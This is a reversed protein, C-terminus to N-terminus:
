SFLDPRNSNTKFYLDPRDYEVPGLVAGEAMLPGLNATPIWTAGGGEHEAWRVQVQVGRERNGFFLRNFPAKM